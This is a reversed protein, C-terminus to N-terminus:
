FPDPEVPELAAPEAPKRKAIVLAPNYVDDPGMIVYQELEEDSYRQRMIEQAVALLWEVDIEAEITEGGNWNTKRVKIHSETPQAAKQLLENYTDIPVVVFGSPASVEVNMKPVNVQEDEFELM